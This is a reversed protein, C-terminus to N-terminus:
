NVGRQKYWRTDCVKYLQTRMYRGFDLLSSFSFGLLLCDFKFMSVQMRACVCVCSTSCRFINKPGIKTIIVDCSIHDFKFVCYLKSAIWRTQLTTTTQENCRVLFMLVFYLLITKPFKIISYIMNLMVVVWVFWNGFM